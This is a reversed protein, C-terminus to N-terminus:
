QEHESPQAKLGMVRLLKLDSIIYAWQISQPHQENNNNRIKYLYNCHQFEEKRKKNLSNVM